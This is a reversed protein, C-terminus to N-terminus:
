KAEESTKTGEGNTPAADRKGKIIELVQSVTAVGSMILIFIMSSHLIDLTLDKYKVVVWVIGFCLCAAVSVSITRKSSIKGAESLM